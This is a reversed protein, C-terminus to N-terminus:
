ASPRVRASSRPPPTSTSATPRASRSTRSTRRRRARSPVRNRDAGRRHLRDVRGHRGTHRRGHGPRRHRGLRRVPRRAEPRARGRRLVEPKDGSLNIVCNSIVVDVSADALPLEELYGKRFEVNEIGAEAANRRALELMEDTMDIGIARGTPGVRRASILVDAGAGSASTSCSRARTCTPSRPRCAAGWRHRSRRARRRPTRMCRRASCAPRTPPAAARRGRREHARAAAAYKERM